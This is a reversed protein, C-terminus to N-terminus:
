RTIDSAYGDVNCRTRDNNTNYSAAAFRKKKQKKKKPPTIIGIFSEERTHMLNLKLM